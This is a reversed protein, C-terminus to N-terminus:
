MGRAGDRIGCAGDSGRSGRVQRIFGDAKRAQRAIMGDAIEM